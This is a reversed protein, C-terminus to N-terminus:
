AARHAEIPREEESFGAVVEDACQALVHEVCGHARALLAMCEAASAKKKRSRTPENAKKCHGVHMYGRVCLPDRWCANPEKGRFDKCHGTHNRKRVCNSGAAVQCGHEAAVTPWAYAM